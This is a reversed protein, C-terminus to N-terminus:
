FSNLQNNSTQLLKNQIFNNINWKYQIDIHVM